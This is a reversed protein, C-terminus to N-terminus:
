FLVPLVQFISGFSVPTSSSAFISCTVVLEMVNVGTQQRLRWGSLCCLKLDHSVRAEKLSAFHESCLSLHQNKEGVHCTAWDGDEGVCMACDKFWIQCLFLAATFM